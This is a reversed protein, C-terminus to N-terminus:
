FAGAANAADAEKADRDRQIANLKDVGDQAVADAVCRNISTEDAFRKTCEERAREPSFDAYTPHSSAGIIIVIVLVIIGGALWAARRDAKAQRLASKRAAAQTEFARYASEDAATFEYGCFRCRSADRRVRESCSRCKKFQAM